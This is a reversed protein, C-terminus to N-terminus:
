YDRNNIRKKGVIEPLFRNIFISVLCCCLLIFVTKVCADLYINSISLKLRKSVFEYVLLPYSAWIYCILTNKGIYSLTKNHLNVGKGVVFLLVCGIIIMIFCIPISYYNGRHVDINKGPFIIVSLVGLGIFLVVGTAMQWPKVDNFLNQHKKFLYGICLFLQVSLARNVMITDAIGINILLIGAVTIVVCALVIMREAKLYKIVLFFIFEAIICCPMYWVSVGTLISVLSTHLYAWGKIISILLKPMISLCLWPVILGQFVRVFFEKFGRNDKFLYGSIAFFLPIKIPSTFVYYIYAYEENNLVHGYIVFIIALARLVDIWEKRGQGTIANAKSMNIRALSRDLDIM